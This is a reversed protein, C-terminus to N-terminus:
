RKKKRLVNEDARRSFSLGFGIVGYLTLLAGIPVLWVGSGPDGDYTVFGGLLFRGLLLIAAGILSWSVSSKIRFGDVRIFASPMSPVAALTAARLM